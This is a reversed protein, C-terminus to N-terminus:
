LGRKRLESLLTELERVSDKYFSMTPSAALDKKANELRTVVSASAKKIEPDNQVPEKIEPHKEFIKDISAFDQTLYSSRERIISRSFQAVILEKSIAAAETAPRNSMKYLEFIDDVSRDNMYWISRTMSQKNELDAIAKDALSKESPRKWDRFQDKLVPFKQLLGDIRGLQERISAASNVSKLNSISQKIDAIAKTSERQFVVHDIMKNVEDESKGLDKGMLLALPRWGQYPLTQLRNESDLYGSEPDWRFDMAPSAASANKVVESFKTKIFEDKSILESPNSWSKVLTQWMDSKGSRVGAYGVPVPQGNESALSGNTVQLKALKKSEALQVIDSLLRQFSEGKILRFEPEEFAQYVLSGGGGCNHAGPYFTAVVEIEIGATTKYKLKFIKEGPGCRLRQYHGADVEIIEAGAINAEPFRESAAEKAASFVEGLRLVYPAFRQPSYLVFFFEKNEAAYKTLEGEKGILVTSPQSALMQVLSEFESKDLRHDQSAARAWSQFQDMLPESFAPLATILLVFLASISRTRM